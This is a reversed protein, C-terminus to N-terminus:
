RIRTYEFSETMKPKGNEFFQWEASFHNADAFHFIANHIHGADPSSLGTADLFAFRLKGSARDFAQAQMRPQNRAMCYHTLLRRGGDLYYVTVMGSGTGMDPDDFRELVASGGSIVEYQVRAAGGNQKKAEWDGALSKLRAFATAADTASPTDAAAAIATLALLVATALIIRAKM